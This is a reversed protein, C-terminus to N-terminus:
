ALLHGASFPPFRPKKKGKQPGGLQWRKSKLGGMSSWLQFPRDLREICDKTGGGSWEVGLISFAPRDLREICDKTSGGSWEVGLIGLGM